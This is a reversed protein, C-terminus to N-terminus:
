RRRIAHGIAVNQQGVFEIYKVDGKFKVPIVNPKDAFRIDPASKVVLKGGVKVTQPKQPIEDHLKYEYENPNNKLFNWLKQREQNMLGRIIATDMQILSNIFSSENESGFHGVARKIEKASLNKGGLGRSVDDEHMVKLPVYHPSYRKWADAQEQSMLGDAVRQDLVAKNMEVLTEAAAKLSEANRMGMYSETTQRALKDSLGKGAWGDEDLMMVVEDTSAPATKGNRRDAIMKNYDIAHLSQAFRDLDSIAWSGKLLNAVIPEVYKVKMDDQMAGALSRRRESNFVYEMTDKDYVSGDKKQVREYLRRIPIRFDQQKVRLADSLNSITASLGTLDETIEAPTPRISNSDDGPLPAPRRFRIDPNETDFTGRNGTASKIQTPDIVAIELIKGSDRIILADPTKNKDVVTATGTRTDFYVPNKAKIYVPYLVGSGESAYNGAYEPDPSFFTGSRFSMYGYRDNNAQAAKFYSLAKQWEGDRGGEPRFSEIDTSGTGHYVVLPKGEADVVKSDGFWRKFEPTETQKRFRIDDSGENFRESLPIVKGADDRTVADASKIQSPDFVVVEDGHETQMIADHGSAKIADTIAPNRTMFGEPQYEFRVGDYKEIAAAIVAATVANRDESESFRGGIFDPSEYTKGGGYDETEVRVYGQIYDGNVSDGVEVIKVLGEYQKWMQSMELASIDKEKEWVNETPTYVPLMIESAVDPFTKAVNNLLVASQTGMFDISAGNYKLLDGFVFPNKAKLYFTRVKRGYTGAEARSWDGGFTFYFGTGYFGADHQHGVDDRFVTFGDDDSGHWGKINYGAARAAEDVMKQASAEDGAKVAALYEMDLRKTSEDAKRFRIGDDSETAETSALEQKMGELRETLVARENESKAKSIQTELDAIQVEEKTRMREVLEASKKGKVIEHLKGDPSKVYGHEGSKLNDSVRAAAQKFNDVKVEKGNYIATHSNTSEKPGIKRPTPKVRQEKAKENAVADVVSKDATLSEKQILHNAYDYGVKGINYGGLYYANKTGADKQKKAHAEQQANNSSFSKLRSM